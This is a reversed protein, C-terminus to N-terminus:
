NRLFCKAGHAYDHVNWDEPINATGIPLTVSLEFFRKAKMKLRNLGIGTAARDLANLSCALPIESAQIPTGIECPCPHRSRTFTTHQAPLSVEAVASGEDLPTRGYIHTDNFTILHFM